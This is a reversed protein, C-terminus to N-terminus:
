IETVIKTIHMNQSLDNEGCELLNFFAHRQVNPHSVCPKKPGKTVTNKTKPSRLVNKKNIRDTKQIRPRQVGIEWWTFFIPKLGECCM